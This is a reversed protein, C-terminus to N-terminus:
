ESQQNTIAVIGLATDQTTSIIELSVVTWHPKPNYLAWAYLNVNFKRRGVKKGFGSWARRGGPLLMAKDFAGVEIGFRIPIVSTQGNRYTMKLDAVTANEKINKSVAGLMWILQTKQSQIPINIKSVGHGIVLAGRNQNSQPDTLKFPTEESYLVSKFAAPPQPVNLMPDVGTRNVPFYTLDPKRGFWGKGDHAQYDSNCASAIDLTKWCDKEVQGNGLYVGANRLMTRIIRECRDPMAVVMQDWLIQSCILMSQNTNKKVYLGAPFMSKTHDSSKLIHQVIPLSDKGERNWYFEDNDLGGLLPERRRLSLQSDEESVVSIDVGLAAQWQKVTKPNMNQLWVHKGAQIQKKVKQLIVQGVAVSADVMLMAPLTNEGVADFNVYPIHMTTLARSMAAGVPAAVALRGTQSQSVVPSSVLRYLLEKAAPDQQAKALLPMQCILYSGRGRYLRLISTRTLGSPSGHSVIVDYIGRKPKILTNETVLTDGAWLSLTRDDMDKLLVDDPRSVFGFCAKHEPDLRLPSPLWSQSPAQIWVVGLGKQVAVELQRGEDASLQVGTIVLREPHKALAAKLTSFRKAKLSPWPLNGLVVLGHTNIATDIEPFVKYTYTRQTLIKEQNNILRLQWQLTSIKTVSPMKIEVQQEHSTGAPLDFFYDQKAITNGDKVLRSELRVHQDVFMKNYTYLTRKVTQGSAFNQNVQRTALLYDPMMAGHAYLKDGASRTESTGWPNWVAVGVDYYGEALMRYADFTVRDKKDPDYADSGGWQSTGYPVKLAYPEYLDESLMMPKQPDWKRGQWSMKGESLWYRTTPIMNDIKFPQWAYHFSITSASGAHLRGGLDIDGSYTVTRTPDLKMAKNGLENLWNDVWHSKEHNAPMYNSGFENSLSWYIVSPHNRLHRVMKLAHQEANSWYSDSVQHGRPENIGTEPSILWGLEDSMRAIRMSPGGHLRSGVYGRSRLKKVMSEYVERENIKVYPIISNRRHMFSVGNLVLQTGEIRMERFGMRQVYTDVLKGAEHLTIELQYLHPDHPWWLKPKEWHDNLTVTEKHHPKISITKSASRFKGDQTQSQVTLTRLKDSQNHITIQSELYTDNKIITKVFVEDVSVNAHAELHVPFPIGTFQPYYWSWGVPKQSAIGPTQSPSQVGIDIQNLQGPKVADTIDMNFPLIGEDSHGVHQGNIRIECQDTVRECHIVVRQGQWSAPLMVQRRFWARNKRNAQVTKVHDGPVIIAQWKTDKSPLENNQGVGFGVRWVGGLDIAQRPLDIHDLLARFPINPKGKECDELLSKINEVSSIKLDDIMHKTSDLRVTLLKWAIKSANKATLVVHDLEPDIVFPAKKKELLRSAVTLYLQDNENHDVSVMLRIRQWQDVPFNNLSRQVQKDHLFLEHYQGIKLQVRTGKKDYINSQLLNLRAQGLLSFEVSVAKHNAAQKWKAKKLNLIAHHDGGAAAALVVSTNPTQTSRKLVLGAPRGFPSKGWPGKQNISEIAQDAPLYTEFDENYELSGVHVDKPQIRKPQVKICKALLSQVDDLVTFKMDDLLFKHNDIRAMIGTWKGIPADKISVAVDSLSTDLVFPQTPQDLPRTVVWLHLQDLNKQDLAMILRVRQWQKTDFKNKSECSQKDPLSISQHSNLTLMVPLKPKYASNIGIGIKARGWISLELCWAKANSMQKWKDKSFMLRSRHDGASAATLVASLNPKQTSRDVVLGTAKGYPSKEWAGQKNVSATTQDVKLYTEFDEYLIQTPENQQAHLTCCSMLVLGLFMWRRLIRLSM